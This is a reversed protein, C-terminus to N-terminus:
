EKDVKYGEEWNVWLCGRTLFCGVAQRAVHPIWGEIRLQRMVADIWPFGTTGQFLCLVNLCSRVSVRFMRQLSLLAYKGCMASVNKWRQLGEANEEWPYQVCMVNNDMKHLGPNASAMTFFFERLLLPEHFSVPPVAGKEQPPFFKLSIDFVLSLTEDPYGFLSFLTSIVIRLLTNKVFNLVHIYLWHFM